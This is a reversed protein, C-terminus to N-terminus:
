RERWNMTDQWFPEVYRVGKTTLLTLIAKGETGLPVEAFIVQGTGTDFRASPRAHLRILTHALSALADPTTDLGVTLVGCDVVHYGTLAPHHLYCRRDDRSFTAVRFWALYERSTHLDFGAPAYTARVLAESHAEGAEIALAEIHNLPALRCTTPGAPAAPDCSTLMYKHARGLLIGASDLQLARSSDPSAIIVVFTPGARFVYQIWTDADLHERVERPVSDLPIAPLTDGIPIHWLRALWDDLLAYGFPHRAGIELRRAGDPHYGTVLRAQGCGLSLLLLPLARTM